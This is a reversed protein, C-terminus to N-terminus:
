HTTSGSDNVGRRVKRTQQVHGTRSVHRSVRRPVQSGFEIAQAALAQSSHYWSRDASIQCHVRVVRPTNGQAVSATQGVSQQLNM